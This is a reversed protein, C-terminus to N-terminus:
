KCVEIIPHNLCVIKKLSEIQIRQQTLLAQQHSLQDLRQKLSNNEAKLAAIEVDKELRLEKIANLMAWMIPDNNVLLYGQENRTVAEPIVREVAQAAFGIQEGSARIGLANDPKYEYRVPMLTSGQPTGTGVTATDFLKFQMDYTGNAVNGSDTLRGQYTFATGQGFATTSVVLM